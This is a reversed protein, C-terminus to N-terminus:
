NDNEFKAKLKIYEKYEKTRKRERRKDTATKRKVIAKCRDKYEEDTEPRVGFLLMNGDHRELMLEIYESKAFVRKLEQLYEIASDIDTEIEHFINVKITEIFRLRNPKRTM